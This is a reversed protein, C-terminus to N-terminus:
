KKPRGGHKKEYDPRTAKEIAQKHPKNLPRDRDAGYFDDLQSELCGRTCNRGFAHAHAILTARRAAGYNWGGNPKDAKYRKGGKMFSEEYVGQVSHFIGHEKKTRGNNVCVCPAEKYGNPQASKQAMPFNSNGKVWHDEIMHHGTNNPACCMAKDKKKPVLICAMKKACDPAESCDLRPLGTKTKYKKAKKCAKKADKIDDKCPHDKDVRGPASMSDLFMWPPTNPPSGHNHTTMDLHRVANEGEIKVDMSWSTFYVKGRNVSSVVGKKAASGAEDGTSKKFYSRNKLMVEKKSIKVTRSGQTTDTTMGTNPYPVPVGPPTAPCEPPTMCVDPFACISKGSGAKCSLERGNAFVNNSM